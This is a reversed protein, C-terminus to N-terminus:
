GGGVDLVRIRDGPVGDLVRRYTRVDLWRKIRHVLSRGPPAFSYYNAPYILALRDSPVPDIFIAGCDRCRYLRFREDTTLYEADWGTAWPEANEAGCALCATPTPPAAADTKSAVPRHDSVAHDSVSYVRLRECTPRGATECRTPSSRRRWSGSSSESDRTPCRPSGTTFSTGTSGRAASAARSRAM